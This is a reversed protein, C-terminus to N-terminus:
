DTATRGTAQKVAKNLHNPTISLMQAYESIRQKEEIHVHLLNKFHGAITLAANTHHTVQPTVFRSLELFLAILYSQILSYKNLLNGQAEEEIRKLLLLIVPMHAEPIHVLPHNNFSLFDLSHLLPHRELHLIENTFHCAFGEIDESGLANYTIHHAPM